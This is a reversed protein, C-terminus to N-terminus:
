RICERAKELEDFAMHVTWVAFHARQEPDLKFIKAVRDVEEFWDSAKLRPRERM